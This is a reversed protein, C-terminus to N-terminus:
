HVVTPYLEEGNRESQFSFDWKMPCVVFGSKELKMAEEGVALESGPKWGLAM